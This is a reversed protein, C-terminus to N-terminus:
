PAGRRVFAQNGDTACRQAIEAAQAEAPAQGYTARVGRYWAVFCVIIDNARQRGARERGAAVIEDDEARPVVHVESAFAPEPPLERKAQSTPHSGACGSLATLALSAALLARLRRNSRANM